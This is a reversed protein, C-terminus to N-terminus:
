RVAQVNDAATSWEVGAMPRIHAIRVVRGDAHPEHTVALLLGEKGSPIDRVLTNVLPHQEHGAADVPHGPASPLGAAARHVFKEWGRAARDRLARSPACPCPDAATM